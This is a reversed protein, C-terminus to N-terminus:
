KLRQINKFGPGECARYSPRKSSENLGHQICYKTPDFKHFPCALRPLQSPSGSGNPDGLGRSNNNGDDEDEEDEEEDEDAPRNQSNSGDRRQRKRSGGIADNSHNASSPTQGTSTDEGSPTSKTLSNWWPFIKKKASANLTLYCSRHLFPILYAALELDSGLIDLVIAELGDDQGSWDNDEDASDDEDDEEQSDSMESDSNQRKLVERFGIQHQQTDVLDAETTVNALLSRTREM